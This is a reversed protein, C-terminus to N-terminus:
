CCRTAASTATNSGACRSQLRRMPRGSLADLRAATGQQEICDRVGPSCPVLGFDALGDVATLTQVLGFTSLLPTVFNVALEYVELRDVQNGVDQQAEVPRFFIAPTNAPPAPGDLTAALLRTSRVGSGPVINPQTVTFRQLTAVNGALMAVRDMAYVGLDGEFSTAYYADPWVAYKPYDPFSPTPFEYAFWGSTVPDAGASIYVCLRNNGGGSFESMMWRDALGDYLVIPDGAGIQCPTGVPALADLAFPGALVAGSKDYIRIVSANIAQIYHNPGVDGVIDPPHFGGFGGGPVSVTPAPVPARNPVPAEGLRPALPDVFARARALAEPTAPQMDEELDEALDFVPDLPRWVPPAPLSRLDIDVIAPISSYVTTPPEGQPAALAPLAALSVLTAGAALCASLRLQLNSM